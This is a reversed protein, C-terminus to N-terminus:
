DFSHHMSNTFYKTYKETVYTHKIPVWTFFTPIIEEKKDKM